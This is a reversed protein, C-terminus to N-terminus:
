VIPWHGFVVLQASHCHKDAEIRSRGICPRAGNQLPEDLYLTPMAAVCKHAFDV